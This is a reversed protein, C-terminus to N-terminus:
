LGGGLISLNLISEVNTLSSSDLITKEIGTSDMRALVGVKPYIRQQGAAEAVPTTQEVQVLGSM